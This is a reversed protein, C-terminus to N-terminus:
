FIYLDITDKSIELGNSAIVELTHPGKPITTTWAYEDTVMDTHELIGDIYIEISETHETTLHVTLDGIIRPAGAQAYGFNPIITGMDNGFLYTHYFDPQTITVTPLDQQISGYIGDIYLIGTGGYFPYIFAYLQDFGEYSIRFYGEEGWEEGASNRVIYCHNVDDYGFITTVHGRQIPSALKPMYVGTDYLDLDKRTMQCITLPGSTILAQKISEEDNNVWGWETIKISRNEWGNISEFPYDYPRHPDPFCGEDPVGHNILYEAPETADVGWAATGGSYYFLHTESLDYGINERLQYHIITELASCLAYAECTPSPMQNKVPSSYDVGNINTWLFTSPLDYSQPSPSSRVKTNATTQQKIPPLDIPHSQPSTDINFWPILKKKGKILYFPNNANDWYNHNWQQQECDSFFAHITNEKFNNEIIRNNASDSLMIGYNANDTIQNRKILNSDCAWHLGISLGFANSSIDNEIITNNYCFLRLNIGKDGNTNIHNQHIRNDISGRLLWLGDNLNETITNQTITNGWGYVLLIGWRNEKMTNNQISNNGSEYLHIGYDKNKIIINNAIHHHNSQFPFIGITTNHIITNTIYTHDAITEIGADRGSPGSNLITLNSLSVQEETIYVVDKSGSGHLITSHKNEGQITLSKDIIISEHYTGEYILITDGQHANNIATQITTYDGHGNSDVIWITTHNQTSQIQNAQILPMQLLFFIAIFPLFKKMTM